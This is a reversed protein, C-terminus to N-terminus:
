YRSTIVAIADRMTNRWKMALLPSYHVDHRQIAECLADLWLSYMEPKVDFGRRSHKDGLQEVARRAEPDGSRLRLCMLLSAMMIQKQRAMDTNAFKPPIEPSKAFFREYFTDFFGPSDECRYYSEMVDPDRCDVKVTSKNMIAM